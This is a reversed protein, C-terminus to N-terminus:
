NASRELQAVFTGFLAAEAGPTMEKQLMAEAREVAIRAAFVKLELRAAREAAAIEAKAAAEIMEAETKALDRLRAAEAEVGRKAEARMEAVFKDIGAIKAEAERQQREAAERARKGEEIQRSIEEQHSRFSPAAKRFAYIILALVIAFNIWRFLWGTPTDAPSPQNEQALAPGAALLVVLSLRTAIPAFVAVARRM